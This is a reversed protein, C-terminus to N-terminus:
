QTALHFLLGALDGLELGRLFEDCFLPVLRDFLRTIQGPFELRFDPLPFPPKPSAKAFINL